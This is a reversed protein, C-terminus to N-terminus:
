SGIVSVYSRVIARSPRDLAIIPGRCNEIIDGHIHAKRASSPAKRAM